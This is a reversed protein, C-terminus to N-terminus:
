KIREPIGCYIRWVETAEGTLACLTRGVSERYDRDEKNIPVIGMGVEDCSVILDRGPLLLDAAAKQPNEGAAIQARIIEQYNVVAKTNDNAEALKKTAGDLIEEDSIKWREKIFARKGQYAGGIVLIM